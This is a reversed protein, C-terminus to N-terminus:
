RGATDVVTRDNREASVTEASMIQLDHSV